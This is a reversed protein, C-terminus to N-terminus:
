VFVAKIHRDFVNYSVNKSIESQYKNLANLYRDGMEAAIKFSVHLLQRFDSNYLPDSQEHKLASCFEEATWAKVTEPCPLNSEDIDIVTAYPQCLEDARALAKEYIEAALQLAEGGSAALGIIEELWTTGATKLHLGADFRKLAKNIIPYISFKDSGSHVSLKLNDPLAFEKIAYNILAIDANFEKAFQQLDGVYEVGKNFRGTFKPAITQAPIKEDAIAALIFLMELPSQAIDTEDMSVEAIFPAKKVSLIHRYLKGAEQIPLLYKEAIEEAEKRSVFIKEDMGEICLEKEILNSHKQLFAEIAQKDAKKGIYDAVDLTFFDSSEIFLDVNNANIHDADVLYQGKYQLEEVAADAAKRVDAPKTGIISHERYSKNWVPSIEIGLDAAKIIASLQAKAQHGFRDGIGM